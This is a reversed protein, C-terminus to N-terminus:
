QSTCYTEKVAYVRQVPYGTTKGSEKFYVDIIYSPSACVGCTRISVVEGCTQQKTNEKKCATALTAIVIILLLKKM